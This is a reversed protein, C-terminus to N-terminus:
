RKSSGILLQKSEALRELLLPAAPMSEQRAEVLEMGGVALV